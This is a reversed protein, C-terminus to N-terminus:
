SQATGSHCNRYEYAQNYAFPDIEDVRGDDCVFGLSALRYWDVGIL